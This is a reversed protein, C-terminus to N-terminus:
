EKVERLHRSIWAELYLEKKEWRRNDPSRIYGEKALFLEADFYSEFKDIDFFEDIRRHGCYVEYVNIVFYVECVVREFAM